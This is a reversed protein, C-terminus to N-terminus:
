RQAAASLGIHEVLDIHTALYQSLYRGAIKRPPHWLAEDSIESPGGPEHRLYLTEAGTLLAGRLVPRYPGAAVPAGARAAIGQAVTVAQQTALGGQKAGLSAVDGAALVGELGLVRMFDDVPIFGMPDSPLGRVHPGTLRPLAIACDTRITGGAGMWLRGDAVEDVTAGAHLTVGRDVLLKGIAQSAEAGFAALPSAEATVLSLEIGSSAARVAVSMQLALEYLPLSWTTGAPVVFAVRRITGERVADILRRIRAADQSGRFTLVGRVAESPRAGLALVLVDYGLRAGGQTEVENEDTLVRALVDRYLRVGRDESIQALAFRPARTEPAFPEAVALARYTFHRNPALLEIEVRDGALAQLALMAELGAVGAGAILVRTTRTSAAASMVEVTSRPERLSM